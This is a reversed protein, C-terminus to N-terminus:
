HVITCNPLSQRLASVDASSLNTCVTLDLYKLKKLSKFYELGKNTIQSCGMLTLEELNSLGSLYSFGKDTLKPCNDLHLKKLSKRAKVHSLAVDELNSCDSIDLSELFTMNKLFSLCTGKVANNNWLVLEKMQSMKGFNLIGSDTILDCDSFTLHTLSRLEKLNSLDADILKVLGSIELQKLTKVNKFTHLTKGTLKHCGSLNLSKLSSKDLKVFCSDQLNFSDKLELIELNKPFILRDGKLQRSFGMELHSLNKVASFLSNLEDDSYNYLGYMRLVKLKTLHKLVKFGEARMGQKGTRNSNQTVNLYTLSAAKKLSAFEKSNYRSSSTHGAGPKPADLKKLKKLLGVGNGQFASCNRLSLSELEPLSKLKEFTVISGFPWNRHAQDCSLDLSKLNKLTAVYDLCKITLKHCDSLNLKTLSKNRCIQEVHADTIKSRDTELLKLAKSASKDPNVAEGAFPLFTLALLLVSLLKMM